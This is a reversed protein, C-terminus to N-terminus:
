ILGHRKAVVESIYYFTFEFCEEAVISSEDAMIEIKTDNLKLQTLNLLHGPVESHQYRESDLLSIPLNQHVVTSGAQRLELFSSDFVADNVIDAKTLTKRGEKARRASVFCVIGNQVMTNEELKLAIGNGVRVVVTISQLLNLYKRIDISKM